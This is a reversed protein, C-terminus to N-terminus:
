QMARLCDKCGNVGIPTRKEMEQGCYGCMRKGIDMPDLSGDELGQIIEEMQSRDEPSMESLDKIFEPSFEVHWGKDTKTAKGHM